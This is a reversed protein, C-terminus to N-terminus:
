RERMWLGSTAGVLSVGALIVTVAIALRFGHQTLDEPSRFRYLLYSIGGGVALILLALWLFGRNVRPALM